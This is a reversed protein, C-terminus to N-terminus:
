LTWYNTLINYVHQRRTASENGVFDPSLESLVYDVNEAIIM